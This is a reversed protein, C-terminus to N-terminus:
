RRLTRAVVNLLHEPLFPKIVRPIDEDLLIRYDTSGADITGTVYVLRSVLLPWRRAIEWYLGIGEIAPLTLDSLVLDFDSRELQALAEAGHAACHVEHGADALLDAILARVDHEPDVVLIRAM